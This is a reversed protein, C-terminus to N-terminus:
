SSSLGHAGQKIPLYVSVWFNLIESLTIYSSPQLAPIQVRAETDTHKIM